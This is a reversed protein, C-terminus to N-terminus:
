TRSKIFANLLTSIQDRAQRFRAIQQEASLDDDGVPDPIPWHLREKDMLANPCSEEACLTIICDVSDPTIEEVGKSWQQTIDIGVERMVAIAQPRVHSPVSGASQVLWTPPALHRALGEAIQSRASNAVCLFLLHTPSAM